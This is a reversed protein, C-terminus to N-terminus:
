ESDKDENNQPKEDLENKEGSPEQDGATPLVGQGSTVEEDSVLVPQAVNSTKETDDLLNSISTELRSLPDLLDKVHNLSALISPTIAEFKTYDGIYIDLGDMVNFQPDSFLKKMANRKIGEDVGEGMFVSFDSDHTLMDIDTQTPLPREHDLVTVSEREISTDSISDVPKLEASHNGQGAKQKSWREFFNDAAM